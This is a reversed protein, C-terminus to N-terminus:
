FQNILLTPLAYIHLTHVEAYKAYKKCIKEVNKANKADQTWMKSVSEYNNQM